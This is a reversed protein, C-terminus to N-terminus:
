LMNQRCPLRNQFVECSDEDRLGQPRRYNHFAAFFSGPIGGRRGMFCAGPNAQGRQRHGLHALDEGGGAAPPDGLRHKLGIKLAGSRIDEELNPHEGAGDMDIRLNERLEYFAALERAAETIRLQAGARQVNDAFERARHPERLLHKEDVYDAVVEAVDFSTAALRDTFRRRRVKEVM